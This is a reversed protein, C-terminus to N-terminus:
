ICPSLGLPGAVALLRMETGDVDARFLGGSPSTLFVTGPVSYPIVFFTEDEIPPPWRWGQKGLDAFVWSTDGIEIGPGPCSVTVAYPIGLLPQGHEPPPIGNTVGSGPLLGAMVFAAVLSIQRLYPSLWSFLVPTLACMAAIGLLVAPAWPPVHVGFVLWDVSGEPTPIQPQFGIWAAVLVLLVVGAALARRAYTAM